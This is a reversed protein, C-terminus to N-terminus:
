WGRRERERALREVLLTYVQEAVAGPDPAAPAAAARAPLEVPTVPAASM